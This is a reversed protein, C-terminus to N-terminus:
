TLILWDDKSGPRNMSVILLITGAPRVIDFVTRIRVTQKGFYTKRNLTIGARNGTDSGRFLLTKQYNGIGPGM